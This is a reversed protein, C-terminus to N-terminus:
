GMFVSPKNCPIFKRIQYDQTARSLENYISIGGLRYPIYQIYKYINNHFLIYQPEPRFPRSGLNLKLKNSCIQIQELIYLIHTLNLYSPEWLPYPFPFM